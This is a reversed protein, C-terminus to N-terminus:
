DQLHGSEGKLSWCVAAGPGAALSPDHPPVATRGPGWLSWPFVAGSGSVPCTVESCLTHHRKKCFIPLSELPWPPLPEPSTEAISMDSTSMATTM